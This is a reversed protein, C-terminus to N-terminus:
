HEPPRAPLRPRRRRRRRRRGPPPTAAAAEGPAAPAQRATQEEAELNRWRMALTRGEEGGHIETWLLAEPFYHRSALIRRVHISRQLEQLRRQAILVLRLRDLDRRAFPLSLPAVPGPPPPEEIEGLAEIEAALDDAPPAPEGEAGEGAEASALPRAAPARRLPVGLPVLVSGMLLANTLAEVAAVASNRYSDLRGLSALLPEPDANMANDAEPLLYALLGVDHLQVFTERAAGQRLIKYVEELIRASSSKVIEGRLARISELAQPEITFGLRAALAVARLMRVPDERFRV